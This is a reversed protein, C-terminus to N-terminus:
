SANIRVYPLVMSRVRNSYGRRLMYAPLEDGRCAFADPSMLPACELSLVGRNGVLASTYGRGILDHM